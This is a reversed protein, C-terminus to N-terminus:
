SSIGALKQKKGEIFVIDHKRHNGIQVMENGQGTQTQRCQRSKAKRKLFEKSSLRKKQLTYLVLLSAFNDELSNQFNKLGKQGECLWSFCSLIPVTRLKLGLIVM